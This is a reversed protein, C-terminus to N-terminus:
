GGSLRGPQLGLLSELHRAATDTTSSTASSAEPQTTPAAPSVEPGSPETSALDDPLAHVSWQLVLVHGPVVSRVADVPVELKHEHGHADAAHLLATPSHGTLVRLVRAIVTNM